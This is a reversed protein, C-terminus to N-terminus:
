NEKRREKLLAVIESALDKVTMANMVHDQAHVMLLNLPVPNGNTEDFILQTQAQHAANMEESAQALLIDAQNYNGNRAERIAQIAASRANGGHTILAMIAVEMESGM